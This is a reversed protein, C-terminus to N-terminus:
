TSDGECRSAVLSSVGGGGDGGSCFGGVVYDSRM